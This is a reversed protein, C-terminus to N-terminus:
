GVIGDVSIKGPGLLLIAIFGTLYVVASEYEGIPHGHHYIFSAFIMNIVLISAALRTFLGLVLFM